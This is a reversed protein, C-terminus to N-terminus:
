AVTSTSKSIPFAALTIRFDDSSEGELSVTVRALEEKNVASRELFQQYNVRDGLIQAEVNEILAKKEVIEVANILRSKSYSM